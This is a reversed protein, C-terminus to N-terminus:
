TAQCVLESKISLKVDKKTKEIHDEFWIPKLNTYHCARLFQERNSLDFTCLANVHDIQWKGNNKGWNDWTMGTHFLSELHYRLQEMTCGLDIVSSGSKITGRVVKSLRSRMRRALRYNVSEAEKKAIYIKKQENLKSRNNDRYIKSKVSIMEKNNKEYEKAYAARKDKYKIYQKHVCEKCEKNLGDKESKRLCFGSAHKETKCTCCKKIM